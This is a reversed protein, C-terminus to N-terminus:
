LRDKYSQAKYMDKRYQLFTSNAEHMDVEARWKTVELHLVRLRERSEDDIGIVRVHPTRPRARDMLAQEIQLNLEAVRLEAKAAALERFTQRVEDFDPAENWM